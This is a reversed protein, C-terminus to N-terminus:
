YNAKPDAEILQCMAEIRADWGHFAAVERRHTTVAEGNPSKLQQEIAEL